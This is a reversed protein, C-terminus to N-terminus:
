ESAQGWEGSNRKGPIHPFPVASALQTLRRELYRREVPNAALELAREYAAAAEESRGLRRLLEARASHMPQYGDLGDIAEIMELGREPGDRM